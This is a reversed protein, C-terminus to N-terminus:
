FRWEVGVLPLLPRNAVPRLEEDRWRDFYHFLADRQDLANLIRLYPRLSMPRGRISPELDWSFEVDVRLFDDQQAIDLPISESASTLARVPSGDLRVPSRFVNPPPANPESLAVDVSSLPLGSGFSVSVGLNTAAPLSAEAGASLLHRGEFRNSQGPSSEEWFWTLAYGLWGSLRNGERLVRLDTGSARLGHFPNSDLGGYRRMFGSLDLRTDADLEQTLGVVLHTASAVDVGPDWSVVALRNQEFEADIGTVPVAQHHRGASVTLLVRESLLLALEARPGLVTREIETYHDARVGLRLRAGQAIEGEWEGFTGAVTSRLSEEPDTVSATFVSSVPNLRYSLDMREASVGLRFEGGSSPFAVEAGGRVRQNTGTAVVPDVWGLPISSEYRSAAVIGRISIRSRDFGYGVSFARNGWRAGDSSAAFTESDGDLDLLLGERNTYGTLRLEHGEGPTWHGRVLADHYHYPFNEVGSLTEQFGHLARGGLLIGGRRGATEVVGRMSVGDVAGETRIGGERPARTSLDLLYSLGGDFRSPAGGVHLDASGLLGGDFAPLLGAIHFPTLIPAGDLLVARADVTSGRTFLVRDQDTDGNEPARRSVFQTLGSEVAGTSGELARFEVTSRAPAMPPLPDMGGGGPRSRDSLASLPDLLHIRTELELDLTLSGSSPLIVSLQLGSTAIHTVSLQAAGGSLGELRYKGRTDSVAIRVREGQRVWVLAGPLAGDARYGPAWVFGELTVLSDADAQPVPESGPAGEPTAGGAPLPLLAPLLVFAFFARKM